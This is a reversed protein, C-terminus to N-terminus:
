DYWDRVGEDVDKEEDKDGKGGAIEETELGREAGWERVEKRFEELRRVELGGWLGGLLGDVCGAVLGLTAVVSILFAGYGTPVVAVGVWCAITLPISLLFHTM